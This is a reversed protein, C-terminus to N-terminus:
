NRASEVVRVEEEVRALVEGHAGKLQAVVTYVGKPMNPFEFITVRPASAGDLQVESRRMFDVSDALVEIARHQDSKEITARITLNSPAYSVRPTARVALLEGARPTAMTLVLCGAFLLRTPTM